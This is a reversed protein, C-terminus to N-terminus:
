LESTEFSFFPSKLPDGQIGHSEWISLRDVKKAATMEKQGAAEKSVIIIQEEKAGYGRENLSVLPYFNDRFIGIPWM